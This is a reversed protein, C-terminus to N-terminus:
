NRVSGDRVFHIHKIIDENANTVVLVCLMAFIIKQEPPLQNLIAEANSSTVIIDSMAKIEASCNIYTVVMHEPHAERFTRFQAPPCSDELSCGANMDPILVLKNPNLIRAGEAMFRVGCFIIIDATTKAARRALDLSDGVFDALEQIDDDQYYHALIVANMDKRLREIEEEYDVSSLPPASRPHTDKQPEPIM